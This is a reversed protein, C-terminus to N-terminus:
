RRQAVCILRPSEAPDYAEGKKLDGWWEVPNFGHNRLTASLPKKHWVKLVAEDVAIDLDEERRFVTLFRALHQSKDANQENYRFFTIRTGDPATYDVDM